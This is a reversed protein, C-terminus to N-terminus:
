MNKLNDFIFCHRSFNRTDKQLPPFIPIGDFRIWFASIIKKRNFLIFCYRSYMQLCFTSIYHKQTNSDSESASPPKSRTCFHDDVPTPYWACLVSFAPIECDINLLGLSRKPRAILGCLSSSPPFKTEPKCRQLSREPTPVTHKKQSIKDYKKTSPRDPARLVFRDLSRRQWVRLRM